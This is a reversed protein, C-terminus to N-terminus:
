FFNLECELLYKEAEAIFKDHNGIDLKLNDSITMADSYKMQVFEDKYDFSVCANCFIVNNKGRRKKCSLYLNPAPEILVYGGIRKSRL